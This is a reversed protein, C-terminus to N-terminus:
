MAEPRRVRSLVALALVGIGGVVCAVVLGVMDPTWIATDGAAHTRVSPLGMAVMIFFNVSVNGIIIAAAHWTSSATTVCVALFACYYFLLYALLAIWFPLFGDPIQSTTIVIATALTLVLWPVVFALGNAAVKALVYQTHSVPLSLVFMSVQDKREQVVGHMVLFLNLVILACILLVGGGHIPLPSLAMLATAVLGGALSSLSIWRLLYLDTRILRAVISRSM